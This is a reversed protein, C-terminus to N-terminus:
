DLDNDNISDKSIMKEWDIYPTLGRGLKGAFEKM